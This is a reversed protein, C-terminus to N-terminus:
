TTPRFYLIDTIAGERQAAPKWCARVKMGVRVAKPEVDSVLHLIGCGPSAGDIEIVAPILPPEVKRMDWTVNCLSFTNVTGTDRLRVWAAGERFCRECFVRPPIVTRKCCPFRTGWLVGEKLGALYRGIGVGTDWAYRADPAGTTTCVRGEKFDENGLGTGRLVVDKKM